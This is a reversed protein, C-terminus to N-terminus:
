KIMIRGASINTVLNLIVEEKGRSIAGLIWENVEKNNVM